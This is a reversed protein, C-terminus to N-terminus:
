GADAQGSHHCLVASTGPVLVVTHQDLSHFGCGHRHLSKCCNQLGSQWQSQVIIHCPTHLKPELQKNPNYELKLQLKECPWSIRGFIYCTLYYLSNNIAAVSGCEICICSHFHIALYVVSCHVVTILQCQNHSSDQIDQDPVM